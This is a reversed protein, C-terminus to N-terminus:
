SNEWDDGYRALLRRHLAAVEHCYAAPLQTAMQLMGATVGQMVNLVAYVTERADAPDIPKPPRKAM